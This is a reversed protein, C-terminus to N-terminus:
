KNIYNIFKERNFKPNDAELMDCFADVVDGVIVVNAKINAPLTVRESKWMRLNNITDAIKIYDKKTM